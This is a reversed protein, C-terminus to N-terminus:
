ATLSAPEDAARRLVYVRLKGWDKAAPIHGVYETTFKGTRDLALAAAFAETVYVSGVPTIPEIRATRSVHVGM